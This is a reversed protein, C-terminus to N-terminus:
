SSKELHVGRFTKIASGLDRCKWSNLESKRYNRSAGITNYSEDSYLDTKQVGVTRGNQSAFDENFKCVWQHYAGSSVPRVLETLIRSVQFNECLYAM